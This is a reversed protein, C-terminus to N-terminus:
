SIKKLKKYRKNVAQWSVNLEEAISNISKKEVEIKIQYL